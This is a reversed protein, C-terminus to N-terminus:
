TFGTSSGKAMSEPVFGRPANGPIRWRHTREDGFLPAHDVGSFWKFRRPENWNVYMSYIYIYIHTHTLVLPVMKPYTCGIETPIPINVPPVPNQGMAMYIYICMM